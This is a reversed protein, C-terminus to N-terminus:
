NGILRWVWLGLMILAAWAIMGLLTGNVIGRAETPADHAPKRPEIETATLHVSVIRPTEESRSM